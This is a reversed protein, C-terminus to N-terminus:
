VNCVARYFSHESRDKCDLVVFVLNNFTIEDLTKLVQPPSFIDITAILSSDEGLRKISSIGKDYIALDFNHLSRHPIQEGTPSVSLSDLRSVSYNKMDEKFIDCNSM